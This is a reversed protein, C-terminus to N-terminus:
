AKLIFQVFSTFTIRSIPRAFMMIPSGPIVSKKADLQDKLEMEMPSGTAVIASVLIINFSPDLNRAKKIFGIGSMQGPLLYDVILLEYNNKEVARFAHEADMYTDSAIEDHFEADLMNQLEQCNDPNDDLILVKKKM